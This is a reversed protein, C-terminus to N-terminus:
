LPMLKQFSNANTLVRVWDALACVNGMAILLKLPSCEAFIGTIKATSASEASGIIMMNVMKCSLTTFPMVAPETFPYCVPYGGEGM